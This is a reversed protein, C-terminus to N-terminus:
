SRWAETHSGAESGSITGSAYLDGARFARVTAAPMRSNSRWAGICRALMRARSYLGVGGERRMRETTVAVELEIAFHHAGRAALYPLPPPEQAPGTM